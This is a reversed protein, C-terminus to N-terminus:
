QSYYHIRKEKPWAVQYGFQIEAEQEPDLKLEWAVVGRKDEVNQKTTPTSVSTLTVQIDENASVPLQDYVTVNVAREHLNKVTTKFNQTEVSSSSIIGTEGTSRDLTAFKVRVKDDAGFGMEHEEGGALQPLSGRGVFVGDRFLSTPGPLLVSGGEVKLKAYLYAVDALKPVTRITLAPAFTKVDIQVRKQGEGTKVTQRDTIVYMAQFGTDIVAAYDERVEVPTGGAAESMTAEPAPAAALNGADFEEDATEKKARAMPIAPPEFDVVLSAIEPAATGSGPRTNSLTL